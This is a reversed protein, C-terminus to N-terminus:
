KFSSVLTTLMEFTDAMRNLKDQPRLGLKERAENVFDVFYTDSRNLYKYWYSHERLYNLYLPNNKLKFQIELSM